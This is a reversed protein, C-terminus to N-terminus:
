MQIIFDTIYIAEVRPEESAAQAAELLEKRLKAKGEVTLVDQSNKMTLVSLMANKVRTLFLAEPKAEEGGEGGIGLSVTMRLYRPSDSDALNIIFPQLEVVSKVEADDPLSDHLSNKESDNAAEDKSGSEKKSNSKKSKEESENKGAAEAPKSKIFFYYVGAGGAALIVLLGVLLLMGRKKGPKKSTEGSDENQKETQSM